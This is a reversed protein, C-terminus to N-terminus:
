ICLVSLSVSLTISIPTWSSSSSVMLDRSSSASSALVAPASVTPLIIWDLSYAWGEVYIPFPFSSSAFIIISWSSAVPIM